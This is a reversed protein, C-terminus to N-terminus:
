WITIQGYYLRQAMAVSHGLRSAAKFVSAAGYIGAANALFTGCTRRLDHWRFAFGYRKAIRKRCSEATERPLSEYRVRSGKKRRVSFILSDRPVAAKKRRDLLQAVSPSETLTILRSTGGRAAEAPLRILQEGYGVDEWRLAPAESFRLGTLLVIRVFDGIAYRHHGLGDDLKADHEVVAEILANIEEPRFFRRAPRQTKMYPLRDLIVESNLNPLRNRRRLHNLLARATNIITNVSRASRPQGNAVRQGRKGKRKPERMRQKLVADLFATLHYPTLLELQAIGQGECWDEFLQRTRKYLGITNPSLEKEIVDFLGDFAEHVGTATPLPRGSKIAAREAHIKESM